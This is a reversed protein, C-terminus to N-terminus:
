GGGRGASIGEDLKKDVRRHGEARSGAMEASCPVSAQMQSSESTKCGPKARCRSPSHGEGRSLTCHVYAAEEHIGIFPLHAGTWTGVARMSGASNSVLRELLSYLPHPEPNVVHTPM